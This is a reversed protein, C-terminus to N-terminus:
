HKIKEKLLKIIEEKDNIIKDKDILRQKFQNILEDTLVEKETRVNTLDINLNEKVLKIIDNTLIDKNCWVSLTPRSIFLKKAADEQKINAKQLAQKLIIGSIKM